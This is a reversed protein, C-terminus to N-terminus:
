VLCFENGEPDGLVVHDLEGRLLHESLVHAGAATLRAAAARIRSDRLVQPVGRGGSVKLDLHVRNKGLKREPVRLFSVGPGVGAPDALYAGDGWESEPVGHHTMWAQWTDFGDPPPPEVYGLAEAWFRALVDPQECDITVSWDTPV